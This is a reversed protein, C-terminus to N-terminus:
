SLASLAIPCSGHLWRGVRGRNLVDEPRPERMEPYSGCRLLFQFKSMMEADKLHSWFVSVVVARVRPADFASATFPLLSVVSYIDPLVKRIEPVDFPSPTILKDVSSLLGVIPLTAPVSDPM